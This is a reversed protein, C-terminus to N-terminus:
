CTAGEGWRPSPQPPPRCSSPTTSSETLVNYVTEVVSDTDTLVDHNWFRLVRYGHSEMWADRGDDTHQADPEGHQGGDVEIVLRSRLCIFDVIYAGIPHQRRFKHGALQFGRLRSWLRREADTMDTRLQRAMEVYLPDRKM